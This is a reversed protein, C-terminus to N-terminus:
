SDAIATSPYNSYFPLVSSTQSFQLSHPSVKLPLPSSCWLFWCPWSKPAPLKYHLLVVRFLSCLDWAPLPMIVGENQLLSVNEVVKVELCSGPYLGSNHNSKERKKISTGLTHCPPATSIWLKQLRLPQLHHLVMSLNSEPDLSNASTMNKHMIHKTFAEEKGQM